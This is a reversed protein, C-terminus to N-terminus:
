VSMKTHSTSVHVLKTRFHAKHTTSPTKHLLSAFTCAHLLFWHLLDLVCIHKHPISSPLCCISCVSHLCCICCVSISTCSALTKQLNRRSATCSGLPFEEHGLRVTRWLKAVPRSCLKARLLTSRELRFCVLVYM